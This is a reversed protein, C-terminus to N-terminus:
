PDPRAWRAQALAANAAERTEAVWGGDGQSPFFEGQADRKLRAITAYCDAMVEHRCGLLHYGEHILTDALGGAIVQNLSISWAAVVFGRTQTINDVWGLYEPAPIIASLLAYAADGAHRGIMALLRDCGPELPITAIAEAIGRGSYAPRPWTRVWPLSVTIGLPALETRWADILEAVRAESVPPDRLVCVRLVRPAGFDYANPSASQGISACGALALACALGTALGQAITRRAPREKTPSM